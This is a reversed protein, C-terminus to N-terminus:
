LFRPQNAVPAAVAPAATPLNPFLPGAERWEAWGERWVLSDSSVRGETIWKRMVDGAAPGYQGGSPPRVYWIAQPAEAIPDYAGNRSPAGAAPQSAPASGTAVSSGAAAAIGASERAAKEKAKAEAREQLVAPDSVVPIFLRAGCHPCIGKKGALFSKVNLIHGQPCRFRIGM